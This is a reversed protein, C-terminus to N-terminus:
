GFHDFGAADVAIERGHRVCRLGPAARLLGVVTLPAACRQAVEQLAKLRTAPVAIALEYDEGGRLAYRWADAGTVARLAASVPLQDVNLEAGCHSSAALRAIDTHVGDSIDICASAIEGLASGLRVRPEPFEFRRCLAAGAAGNANAVGDGAVLTGQRVALGAAADGVNGTLCVCDGARGGSRRLARGSAAMGMVQVTISLPGRTLNGGVLAVNHVQALAGFGAAFEALWSEDAAPLVLSLLAWSPTAAMAACDSLNVALARHGLSRPASGPLFHTGEVLTDTTAILEMGPPTALVAADDGIGLVVDDRQAGLRLFFRAIIESENMAM